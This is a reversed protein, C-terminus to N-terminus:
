AVQEFVPRGLEAIREKCFQIHGLLLRGMDVVLPPLRNEADEIREALRKIFTQGPPVAIGYEMLHGRLANILQTRQRVLMDRTKLLMALSQQEASKVPVFRMNPRLAAESIAEADAVDNKHRKVFPKVYAPPILRVEHGLAAIERGWYHSTACAEMAEVCPAQRELFARFQPRSLKKRFVVQGTPGAGHLQFVSKALDVGIITVEDM